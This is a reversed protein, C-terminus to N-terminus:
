HKSCPGYAVPLNSLLIAMLSPSTLCCFPLCCFPLITSLLITSLLITSLLIIQNMM